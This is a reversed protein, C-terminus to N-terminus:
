IKKKSYGEETDNKILNQQDILLPRPYGPSSTGLMWTGLDAHDYNDSGSDSDSDNDEYNNDSDYNNSDDDDDASDNDECNDDDDGVSDGEAM